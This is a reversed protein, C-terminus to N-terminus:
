LGRDRLAKKVDQGSLRLYQSTTLLSSHGLLDQVATVPVGASLLEMARTHRLTHPHPFLERRGEIFEEQLLEAQEALHYFWKRFNSSDVAFVKGKIDPHEMLFSAIESILEPRVPVMRSVRTNRKLTPIRIECERTNIDTDDKIKLVEGLRAGTYRMTLYVLWYKGRMKHKKSGPASDFWQKWTHTLRELEEPMLYKIKLNGSKYIQPQSNRNAPLSM